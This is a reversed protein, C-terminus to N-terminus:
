LRLTNVTKHFPKTHQMHVTDCFRVSLDVLVDHTLNLKFYMKHVINKIMARNICEENRTRKEILKEKKLKIKIQTHM